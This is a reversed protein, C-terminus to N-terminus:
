NNIFKPELGKQLLQVVIRFDAISWTSWKVPLHKTHFAIGVGSINGAAIIKGFDQLRPVIFDPTIAVRWILLQNDNDIESVIEQISNSSTFKDDCDIYMIWGDKCYEALTECHKNWPAPYTSPQPIPYELEGLTLKIGDILSNDCGVIWNINQYTQSEISEKLVKFYKPRTARTLINILPKNM